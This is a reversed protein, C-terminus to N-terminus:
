GRLARLKGVVEPFAAAFAEIEDDTTSWGVSVRLSRDADVGMAALVPSPELAESSCSSGSHAAIGRQDLGLLIPEAEVGDVGVCVLHPLRADTDGFRHVGDVSTAIAALRNTQVRAREAEGELRADEALEAAAAGFGVIAPVDEIGGRRAREQM